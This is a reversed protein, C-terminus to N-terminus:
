APDQDLMRAWRTAWDNLVADRLSTVPSGKAVMSLYYLWGGIVSILLASRARGDLGSAARKGGIWRTLQAAMARDLDAQLELGFDLGQLEQILKEYPRQRASAEEYKLAIAILEARTNGYDDLSSFGFENPNESVRSRAVEIALAEKSEFHRYFAGARPVLGAKTEIRAISTGQYGRELFLELAADIIRERTNVTKM